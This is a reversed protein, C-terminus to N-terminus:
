RKGSGAARRFISPMTKRRPPSTIAKSTSTTSPAATEGVKRCGPFRLFMRILMEVIPMRARPWVRAMSTLCTSRDTPDSIAKAGIAAMLMVAAARAELSVGTM